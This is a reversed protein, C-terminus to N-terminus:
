PATVQITRVYTNNTELAEVVEDAADARGIVYYTGPPTSAAVTLTVTGADSMGAGLAAVVRSGLLVDGAGLVVDTSLYYATTSPGATAGGLNNTVDSVSMVSGARISTPLTLSSLGLDPGIRVIRAYTNNTEQSEIVADGSDARAFLYYSGTPTDSPVVLVVTGSHTEGAALGPVPRSGLFVDAADLSLDTSLYFATTSPGAAVGGQNRTTDAVTISLGAATVSPATFSAIVLDPGVLLQRAFVNNAPQADVALTGDNARALIWYLGTALGAPITFTVSGTHSAGTALAPVSRTAVLTDGGDVTANASIYYATVSPPAPAAGRNTTTDTFTVTAGPSATGPGSLSSVVLDAGVYLLAVAVNNSEMTEVVVGDADAKALVYYAGAVTSAPITVAVSGTSSAGSALAPVARGGLPTDAADLLGGFRQAEGDRLRQEQPRILHNFSSDAIVGSGLLRAGVSFPAEEVLESARAGAVFAAAREVPAALVV